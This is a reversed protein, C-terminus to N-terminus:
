PGPPNTPDPTVFPQRRLAEAAATTRERDANLSQIAAENAEPATIAPPDPIDALDRFIPAEAQAALPPLPRGGITPLEACSPLACGLLLLLSRYRNKGQAASM